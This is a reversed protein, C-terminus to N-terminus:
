PAIMGQDALNRCARWVQKHERKRGVEKGRGRREEVEDTEPEVSETDGDTDCEGSGNEDGRTCLMVATASKRMEGLPVDNVGSSRTVLFKVPSIGCTM